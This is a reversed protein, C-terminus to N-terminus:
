IKIGNFFFDPLLEIRQDIFKDFDNDPILGMAEMLPRGVFPFVCLSILNIMIQEPPIDRIRGEDIERRILDVFHDIMGTADTLLKDKFRERNHYLEHIIFAPIHPNEKLTTVYNRIFGRIKIEFNGKSTAIEGMRAFLKYLAEDLIKEFLKDKSRFYYHLMAKNIGAENAIEQMRAGFYGRQYFIKKAAALIKEEVQEEKKPTM